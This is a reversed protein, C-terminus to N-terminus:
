GEGEEAGWAAEGRGQSLFPTQSSRPPRISPLISVPRGRLIIIVASIQGSDGLPGQVSLRMAEPDAPCM